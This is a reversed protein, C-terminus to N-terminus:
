YRRNRKRQRRQAPHEAKRSQRPREDARDSSQHDGIERHRFIELAKRDAGGLAVPMPTSAMSAMYTM